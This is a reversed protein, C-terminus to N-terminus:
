FTPATASYAAPFAGTLLARTLPEWKLAPSLKTTCFGSLTETLPDNTVRNDGSSTCNIIINCDQYARIARVTQYFKVPDMVGNGDDDRMHLHAVSAGLKWCEYVQAAIEEPQEPINYGAPTIAGTLAATIITKAM